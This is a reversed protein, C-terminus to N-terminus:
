GLADSELILGMWTMAYVHFALANHFVFYILPTSIENLKGFYFPKGETYHLAHYVCVYVCDRFRIHHLVM